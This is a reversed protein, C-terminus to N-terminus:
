PKPQEKEPQSAPVGLDISPPKRGLKRDMGTIVRNAAEGDRRGQEEPDVKPSLKTERAAGSRDCGALVLALCLIGVLSIFRRLKM